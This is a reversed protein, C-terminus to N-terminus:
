DSKLGLIWVKKKKKPKTVGNWRDKTPSTGEKKIKFFQKSQDRNTEKYKTPTSVIVSQIYETMRSVVIDNGTSQFESSIGLNRTLALDSAFSLLNVPNCKSIKKRLAQVLRDIRKKLVPYKRKLRKMMKKHQERSMNNKLLTHRGFRAMEVTGNNYYDDPKIEM